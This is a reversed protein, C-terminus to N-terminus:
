VIKKLLPTKSLLFSLLLSLTLSVVFVCPVTLIAAKISTKGLLTYCVTIFAAHIAYVGLSNKSIFVFFRDAKKHPKDHYLAKAAVFVASTQLLVNVSINDYMQIAQGTTYSLVFTMSVTFLVGFFGLVYLLTKKEIEFNHLYWGLIFYSTFGGVYKLNLNDLLTNIENFYASYCGGIKVIQPLAFSFFLSLLLFYEVHKKNEKKIWLRLLPVLLYLGVIMYCFWLHFHGEAFSKIASLISVPEGRLIPALFEFVICYAASWFVFFLIIKAIHGALKKITFAYNEDLLLAGSLMVFLPVAIRSISDFFNGIWFDFSGVDKVVYRMSAHILVVAFCAITRLLDFYRIRKSGEAATQTIQRNSEM